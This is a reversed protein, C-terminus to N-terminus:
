EMDKQVCKDQTGRLITLVVERQAEISSFIELPLHCIM